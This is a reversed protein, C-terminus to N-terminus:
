LCVGIMDVQVFVARFVVRTGQLAEKTMDVKEFEFDFPVKCETQVHGDMLFCAVLALVIFPPTVEKKPNHLGALYPHKLAEDVSIRKKPHFALMKEM